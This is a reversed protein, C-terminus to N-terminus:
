AVQSRNSRTRIVGVNDCLWQRAEEAPMPKGFYYGQGYLCDLTQLQVVQEFTEIGEAVPRLDMNEALMIISNAVASHARSESIMNIFSRDIKLVDLPFQQLLSLSSYGTGFDDMAVKLGMQRLRKLCPVVRKSEHMAVSETIELQLQGPDIANKEIAAAIQEELESFYLQIRSINVSMTLKRTLEPITERWQALQACATDIVWKGVKLIQGNSEMIHIFQDPPVMGQEPHLWRILAEFGMVEGSELNCIPQYYLQFQNKELAQNLDNEMELLSIAELYMEPAFVVCQNKGNDKARYMATDSDRMLDDLTIDRDNHDCIRIGFSAYVSLDYGNLKRIASLQSRIEDMELVVDETSAVDEMLITFEDGGLRAITSSNPGHKENYRKAFADLEDAVHVLLQDGVKHGLSDNIRKFGDLDIFVVAIKNDESDALGDVAQSLAKCFAARNPLGTLSDTVAQRELVELLAQTRLVARTRAVLEFADFPKTVYDVAGLSFGTLKDASQNNGTLFIIPLERTRPGSKLEECVEFGTRDPLSVDLLILDPRHKNALEIGERGSTAVITAVQLADLRARVLVHIQPDDDILLVSQQRKM